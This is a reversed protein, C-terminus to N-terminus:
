GLEDKGCGMQEIRRRFRGWRAAFVWNPGLSEAALLQAAIKGPSMVDDADLFQIFTGRASQLGVNRATAAGANPQKFLRIRPDVFRQLAAWTEDTSGDDVVIVELNSHSQNTVCHLTEEIWPAANYCPIIVSVLSTM